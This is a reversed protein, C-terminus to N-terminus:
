KDDEIIEKIKNIKELTMNEPPYFGQFNHCLIRWEERMKMTDYYHEESLYVSYDSTYVGAYVELTNKDFKDSWPQVSVWRRSIHTITKENFEVRNHTDKVFLVKQGVEFNHKM